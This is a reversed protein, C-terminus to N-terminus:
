IRLWLGIEVSASFYNQVDELSDILKSSYLTGLMVEKCKPEDLFFVIILLAHGNETM